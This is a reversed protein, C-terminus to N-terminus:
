YSLRTLLNASSKELKIIKKRQDTQVTNNKQQNQRSGISLQAVKLLGQM